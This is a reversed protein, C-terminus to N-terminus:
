QLGIFNIRFNLLQRCFYIVHSYITYSFIANIENNISSCISSNMNVYCQSSMMRCTQGCFQSKWVHWWQIFFILYKEMNGLDIDHADLWILHTQANATWNRLNTPINLCRHKVEAVQQLPTRLKPRRSPRSRRLQQQISELSTM